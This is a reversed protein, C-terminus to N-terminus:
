AGTEQYPARMTRIAEAVDRLVDSEAPRTLVKLEAVMQRLAKRSFLGTGELVAELERATMASLRDVTVMDAAKVVSVTADKNMPEDVLSGELVDARTIIRVEKGDREEFRMFERGPIRFGISLDTLFGLKARQHISRSREDILPIEGVVNLGREDEFAKDIPFGGIPDRQHMFNFRIPRNGRARHEALSDGFVNPGDFKDPFDNDELTKSALLGEIIGIEIGDRTEVKSGTVAGGGAIKMQM